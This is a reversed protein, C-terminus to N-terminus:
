PQGERLSQCHTILVRLTKAFDNAVREITAHRHFMTGYYWNVYLRNEQIYSQCYLLEDCKNQLSISEGSSEQAPRFLTDPKDQSVSFQGVYNFRVDNKRMAELKKVVETDESCRLLLEFGLGRNPTRRIQERISKLADSPNDAGGRELVMFGGMVFLGVSRSLDMDETGFLTGRGSDLVIMPLWRGGTWQTVAEVLAMLLVDTIQAHYTKLVQQLLINTEEAGLVMQVRGRQKGTNAEIRAEPYDLPLPTYTWSLNLWYDM